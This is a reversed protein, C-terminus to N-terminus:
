CGKSKSAWSFKASIFKARMTAQQDTIRYQTPLFFLPKEPLLVISKFVREKGLLITPVYKWTMTKLRQM